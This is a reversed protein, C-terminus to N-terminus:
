KKTITKKTLDKGEKWKIETGVIKDVDNETLMKFSAKLLDNEFFENPAFYFELSFNETGEESKHKIERL